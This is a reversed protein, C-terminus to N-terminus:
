HEGQGGGSGSEVRRLAEAKAGAGKAPVLSAALRLLELVAMDMDTFSAAPTLAGRPKKSGKPNEFFSSVKARSLSDSSLCPRTAM